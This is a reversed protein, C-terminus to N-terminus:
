QRKKKLKTWNIIIILISLILWVIVATHLKHGWIVVIEFYSEIYLLLLVFVGTALANKWNPKM